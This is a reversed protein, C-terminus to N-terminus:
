NRNTGWIAGEGAVECALRVGNEEFTPAMSESLGQALHASTLPVAALRAEDGRTYELTEEALSQFLDLQKKIITLYERRAIDDTDAEAMLSAFGYIVAVPSRMDHVMTAALRGLSSLRERALLQEVLLANQIATAVLGALITVIRENDEDFAEADYSSMNLAGLRKGGYILPAVLMSGIRVGADRTVYRPDGAVDRVLIARGASLAYGAVGFTAAFSPPDNEPEFFTARPDDIGRAARLVLDGTTEDVLMVSCNEPGIEDVVIELTKDLIARLDVSGALADAIRRLASLERVKDHFARNAEALAEVYVQRGSAGRTEDATM